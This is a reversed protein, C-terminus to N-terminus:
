VAGRMDHFAFLSLFLQGKGALHDAFLPLVVILSQVVNFLDTDDPMIEPMKGSFVVNLGDIFAEANITTVGSSILNSAISLGLSYSVKDLEDTDKM